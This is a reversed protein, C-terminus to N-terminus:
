LFIEILEVLHNYISSYGHSHGDQYAKSWVKPQYQEPVSYFDAKNKVFEEFVDMAESTFHKNAEIEDKEAKKNEEYAKFEEAYKMAEESTHKSKLFPRPLPMITQYQSVFERYKEWATDITYNEELVLKNENNKM